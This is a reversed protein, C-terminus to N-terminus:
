DSYGFWENQRPAYEVIPRPGNPQRIFQVTYTSELASYAQVADFHEVPTKGEPSPYDIGEAKLRERALRVANQRLQLNRKFRDANDQYSLKTM